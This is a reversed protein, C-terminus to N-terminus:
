VKNSNNNASQTLQMSFPFSSWVRQPFFADGDDEDDGDLEEESRGRTQNL